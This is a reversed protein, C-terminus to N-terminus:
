FVYDMAMSFLNEKFENSKGTIRHTYEAHISINVSTWDGLYYRMLASYANIEHASDYSPPTIWNYLLSAVLRNDIFNAWDAEILGGTYDYEKGSKLNNLAKDDVGKMFLGQINLTKWNLSCDAGVRYFPKNQSGDTEGTPSIMAGTIITPQMGYYGFIGIKQGATQGEGKGFTKNLNFYADKYKNNDPDPGNGNIIGAGYKIGYKLRGSAEIGLQNNEFSYNNLPTTFSYIEYPEFIYFSRKSSFAQYAPEFKGIRINLADKVLNSFVISASELSAEQSPNTGNKSGTYDGSPSDIRPTYILLFSINKHLMGAALLDFGYINFGSSTGKDSSYVSFGTMTRISLPPPTEFVNKEKGEQGAIQYGNDRFKQGYDNLKTFAVHCMTCSFGYKKAFTPIAYSTSPLIYYFVAAIILLFCFRKM